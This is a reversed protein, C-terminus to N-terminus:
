RRLAGDACRKEIILTVLLGRSQTHCVLNDSLEIRWGHATALQQAIALGLGSGGAERSRAVELRTFPRFVNERHEVPIGPGCDQVMIRLSDGSKQLKLKVTSGEGYRRANDLLNGVIRRLAAEDIRVM